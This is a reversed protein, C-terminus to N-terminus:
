FEFGLRFRIGLGRVGFLEPLNDNELYSLRKVLDITLLKFINSVGISGEMYPKDVLSFTTIEGDRNRPYQILDDNLNPNNRDTVRGYLLKFSVIERLKLKKFLPIKNFIFGNFYYRVNFSVYEDNVFELFNMLNYSYTQYAYTQNARAMFQLLYPVEGFIKGVELNTHAYGLISFNWKKFVDFKVRHYDYNGGLIDNKLGLEYTLTFVPYRNFIAHRYERGQVFQENPAWRFKVGVESTNISGLSDVQTADNVFPFRLDGLPRQERHELVLNYSFNNHFEKLYDVKYSDFFLLKDVVGRKFSLLLSGENVLNLNQGPFNTDHQYSVRIRHRPNVEFDKNFSYEAAGAYKWEKDKFGYLVMGELNLRKNFKLNTEGGIRLRDGEIENFSYVGNLPGVDIPGFTYYGTLALRIIDMANKFAPIVQITDIMQYVAEEDKSLPIPRTSKWYADDKTFTDEFDKIKESASYIEKDKPTNFLHDAYVSTKKGYFGMSKKSLKFDIIMNDKNLIWVSDAALKFEQDIKLDEVWNMNIQDMISMEAKLVTYNSDASIYLNGTFGLDLKNRTIFALDIVQRNNWEITDIIYFRYFDPAIISLPSVFQLDIININNAYIDIDQYLVDMLAVVGENDWYEDLGSMNVAYRHERKSKPKKRFYVKSNTEQIYVPLYPKGNLESTDVHDFIFQFQNFVKREKFKDTINNIDLEVKEYKNYEFYDQGSMRNQDKNKIVKRILEVAPNNKKRYRRKKATITVTELQTAGNSLEFNITQNDGLVVPKTADDYGVFSATLKDTAWQSSMSYVGDFDTTTGVSAGEFFVNVFPLPEKTNADIVVGKVKTLKQEKAKDDQGYNTTANFIVLLGIFLVKFTLLQKLGM